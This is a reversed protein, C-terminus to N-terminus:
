EYTFGIFVERDISPAEMGLCNSDAELKWRRRFLLKPGLEMRVSCYGVDECMPDGDQGRANEFRVILYKGDTYRISISTDAESDYLQGEAVFPNRRGFLSGDFIGPKIHAIPEASNSLWLYGIYERSFDIDEPKIWRYDKGVNKAESGM